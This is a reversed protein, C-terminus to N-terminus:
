VNWDSKVLIPALRVAGGMAAHHLEPGALEFACAPQWDMLSQGREDHAGVWIYYRGGALPIDQCEATLEHRGATLNVGRLLSFIPTAPGQSFGLGIECWQEVGVDLTLRVRVDGHSRPEGGDCGEVSAAAVSIRGDRVDAAALEEIAQRYSRMVAPTMGDERLMGRELWVCRRCLSEIATIDHSVLVLTTGGEIMESMRQACKRQFNADGVALVEDVLLVDPRVSSAVAFGLRMRMGSSYFKLPRNVAQAVEAFSIIEDFRGAIERRSAGVLAGALYVNEAGTLDPHMGAHIEILSGVRGGAQTRGAYPFMVGALVKLLTSKGSGNTGILGVAEGPEVQFSVDRLAWRWSAGSRGRVRQALRRMQESLLAGAADQRFRKWLHEVRIEGDRSM